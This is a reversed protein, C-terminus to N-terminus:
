DLDAGCRNFPRPPCHHAPTVTLVAPRHDRDHEADLPLRLEHQAVRRAVRGPLASERDNEVVSGTRVPRRLRRHAHVAEELRMRPKAPTQLDRELM